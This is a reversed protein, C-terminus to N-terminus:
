LIEQLDHREWDFFPVWLVKYLIIRLFAVIHWELKLIKIGM